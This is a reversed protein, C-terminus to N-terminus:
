KDRLAIIEEAIKLDDPGDINVTTAPDVVFPVIREGYLSRREMLVTTRTIYISGERHYAPPLLQRRPPPDSQGTAWHLLGEDDQVLAWHPHHHEPLELVSLLTDAQCAVFAECARDIMESTRLPNTPQLLCVAEYTQGAESVAGIAHRIVDITPTTDAALERPRMFPVDVGLSRGVRAIEESDTSLIVRTLLRSGLAADVTYALLPRGCVMALNKGPIGKSGGRAPILGLIKMHSM